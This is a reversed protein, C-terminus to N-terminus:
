SRVTVDVLVSRARKHQCATVSCAGERLEVYALVQCGLREKMFCIKSNKWKKM